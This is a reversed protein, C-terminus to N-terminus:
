LYNQTKAQLLAAHNVGNKKLHIYVSVDHKLEM